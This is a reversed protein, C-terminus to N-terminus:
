VPVRTIINKLDSYKDIAHFSRDRGFGSEKFGGFPLEVVPGTGGNVNINGAVLKHTVRGITEVNNSWVSAGLGYKSDNAIAIAEEETDFTLISLIPGFVENQALYGSSNAVRAVSPGLYNGAPAGSPSRGDLLLEAGDSLGKEIGSLVGEYQRRNVVPGIDTGLTLPNGVKMGAARSLIKEAFSEYISRQVLLRTPAECVQGNNSFMFGVSVDAAMELNPADAFVLNASKGGLELAVRKLNSNAAAAMIRRGTSTSGTFTLCDVDPHASLAAGAAGGGTVIELVGKPIGAEFALEVMRMVALSGDESPKVVVSNGAVLAPAIKWAGIMAPANWPLIAGVVGLPMRVIQATVGPETQILEDYVKDTTESYWYLCDVANELELNRIHPVTAGMDRASLVALDFAEAAVLDAWRRLIRKRERPHLKTWRGEEYARRANAVARDVDLASCDPIEALISEDIASKVVFRKGEISPVVAGDSIIDSIPPPKLASQDIQDQTIETM